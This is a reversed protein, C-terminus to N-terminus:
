KNEKLFKNYFDKIRVRLTDLSSDNKIITCTSLETLYKLLREEQDIRSFSTSSIKSGILWPHCILVPRDIIIIYNYTEIDDTDLITGFDAVGNSILATEALKLNKNLSKLIKVAESKGCNARGTVLINM